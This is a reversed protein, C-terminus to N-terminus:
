ISNGPGFKGAWTGDNIQKIFHYSEFAESYPIATRCAIRREYNYLMILVFDIIFIIILLM